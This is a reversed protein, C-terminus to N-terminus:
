TKARRRRWVGLGAAGAALLLMSNPEPIASTAAVLPASTFGYNTEWDSLSGVSPNRQWLLYDTGDVDGDVDFDGPIGEVYEVIGEFINGSSSYTFVLDQVDVNTDYGMGLSVSESMAITSNGQLWAEALFDTGIGGVEEWGEGSGDPAGSGEFDQDTLSSWNIDDLSNSESTIQYSSIDIEAARHGHLAIHGALTNVQLTLRDLTSTPHSAANPIDNYGFGHLTVDTSGKSIHAWGYHTNSGLHFKIGVFGPDGSDWTNVEVQAYWDLPDGAYLANGFVDDPAVPDSSALRYVTVEGETGTLGNFGSLSTPAYIYANSGFGAVHGVVRIRGDTTMGGATGGPWPGTSTTVNGTNLFFNLPATETTVDGVDWVVEAANTSSQPTLMTAAAAASYAALRKATKKTKKSRKTFNKKSTKM